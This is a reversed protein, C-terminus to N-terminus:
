QCCITSGGSATATTGSTTSTSSLSCSPKNEGDDTSNYPYFGGITTWDNFALGKARCYGSGAGFAGTASSVDVPCSPGSRFVIGDCSGGSSSCQCACTRNDSYENDAYWTGKPNPTYGAPCAAAASPIRVCAASTPPKAVCLQNTGCTASSRSAACFNMSSNWSVTNPSGQTVTCGSSVVSAVEKVAKPTGFSGSICAGSSTYYTAKYQATSCDTNSYDFYVAMSCNIFPNCSCGSCTAPANLGQNFHEAVSYNTSPCASSSFIGVENGVAVSPVCTVQANCTPDACDALGDGNNDLGDLCDSEAVRVCNPAMCKFNTQCDMDQSCSTLCGSTGCAFGNPCSGGTTSCAGAGDCKGDCAAGCITQNSPYACASSATGDCTGGCTSGAGACPARSGHPPGMVPSCTGLAQTDCAQCQGTCASDCCVGDVCFGSACIDASSCKEGLGSKAPLMDATATSGDNDNTDVAMDAASQPLHGNRWCANDICSYGDPCAKGSPSCTFAGDPPNPVWCGSFALLLFVFSSRRM